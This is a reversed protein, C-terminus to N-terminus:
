NPPNVRQATSDNVRFWGAISFRDRKAPLVEHPFEESLFIVLTGALPTVNISDPQNDPPYIVLEGGDNHGWDSNLYFVTSLVRNSQGQFADFHRKYFSGPPYHAFHSEYSFLGLFLRTNLYSKLCDMWNLWAATVAANGQIWCIEDTRVFENQQYQQNRGIGAPDFGVAQQAYDTLRHTLAMPLANPVISFGRQLIDDAISAFLPEPAATGVSQAHDSFQM